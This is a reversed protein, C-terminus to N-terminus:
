DVNRILPLDFFHGKITIFTDNEQVLVTLVQKDLTNKNLLFIAGV